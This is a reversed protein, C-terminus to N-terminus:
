NRRAAQREARYKQRIRRQPSNRWREVGMGICFSAIALLAACALITSYSVGM